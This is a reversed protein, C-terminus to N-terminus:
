WYDPSCYEEPHHSVGDRCSVFKMATLCHRSTYFSDHGAGSIIEMWRDAGVINDAATKVSQICDTDFQAAPSDTDLTWDFLLYVRDM